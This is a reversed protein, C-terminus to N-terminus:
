RSKTPKTTATPIRSKSRRSCRISSMPPPLCKSASPISGNRTSLLVEPINEPLYQDDFPLDYINGDEMPMLAKLSPDDEMMQKINPAYNEILDNLPIFIGGKGYRLIDSDSVGGGFFIDPLDTGSALILNKKETYADGVVQEYTVHVGTKENIEQLMTMQNFDSGTADCFTFATLEIPEDVVPYGTANFNEIEGSASGADGAASSSGDGSCGVAATLVMCAALFASLIRKKKM